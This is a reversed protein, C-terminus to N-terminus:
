LRWWGRTEATLIDATEMTSILTTEEEGREEEHDVRRHNVIALAYIKRCRTIANYMLADARASCSLFAEQPLYADSGIERSIDLEIEEKFVEALAESLKKESM